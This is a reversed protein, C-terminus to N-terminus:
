VYAIMRGCAIVAAWAALSVCAAARAAIPPRGGTDWAAMGRAAVAHFVLANVAAAALLVLKLRFAPNRSLEVAHASFLLAGSPVVLALSRRSWGLLHGGLARAPLARGLGLLRLDFLAAGGVLLAIGALHVIEVAPYLWPSTRVATAVGTRELAALWDM